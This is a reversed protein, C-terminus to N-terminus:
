HGSVSLLGELQFLPWSEKFKLAEAKHVKAVSLYGLWRPAYSIVRMYQVNYMYIIYNQVCNKHSQSHLTCVYIYNSYVIISIVVIFLPGSCM